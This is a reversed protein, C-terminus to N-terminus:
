DEKEESSLGVGEGEPWNTTIESIGSHYPNGMQVEQTILTIQKSYTANNAHRTSPVNGKFM